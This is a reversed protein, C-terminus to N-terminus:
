GEPRGRTVDPWRRRRRPRRYVVRPVHVWSRGVPREGRPPRRHSERSPATMGPAWALSRRGGRFVASRAASRCTRSRAPRTCSMAPSPAAARAQPGRPARALCELDGGSTSVPFAARTTVPVPESGGTGGEIITHGAGAARHAALPASATPSAQMVPPGRGPIIGWRGGSPPYTHRCASGSRKMAAEDPSLTRM